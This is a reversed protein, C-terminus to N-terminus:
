IKLISFRKQKEFNHALIKLIKYDTELENMEPTKKHSNWRVSSVWWWKHTTVFINKAAIWLLVLSLRLQHSHSVLEITITWFHYHTDEM